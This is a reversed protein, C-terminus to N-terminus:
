QMIFTTFYVMKIQKTGLATNIQDMMEQKLRERQDVQLDTVTKSSLLSLIRDQIIPLKTQFEKETKKDTLELVVETKLFRRGQTDAINVVFEGAKVLPGHEVAETKKTWSPPSMAMKAAGYAVGAAVLFIALGVVILRWDLWSNKVSVDKGDAM